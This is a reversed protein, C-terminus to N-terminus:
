RTGPLVRYSDANRTRAPLTAAFERYADNALEHVYDELLERETGHLMVRFRNREIEEYDGFTDALQLTNKIWANYPDGSFSKELSARGAEIEGLRLQNMGLLGHGRWSQPDLEIARRAFDAADQYLRNQAALDALTAYFDAYSPNLWLVQAEARTFIESDRTLHAIVARLTLAELSVPNIELAREVEIRAETYQEIEILLRALFVRAPVLNPNRGLAQLTTQPAEISFDFHQSRAMGLLARPHDDDIELVEGFAGAAEQSNYKELLLEGLAIGAELLAPDKRQAQDFMWVADQFLQPDNRGLERTASAIAFLDRATAEDVTDYAERIEGWLVEAKNLEGRQRHIQSRLYKASLQDSGPTSILQEFIVQAADLNGTDLHLEGLRHKILRNDLDNGLEYEALEIAATYEGALRLQDISELRSDIAAYLSQTFLLLATAAFFRM